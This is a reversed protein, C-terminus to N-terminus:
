KEAANVVEVRRNEPATPNAAVKLRTEGYGATVLTEPALKFKEVLYRKVADARRESLEQNFADSGVSDTHGALVFSNGKLKPDSLAKGLADINGLANRSINASNFDFRIELDIKPNTEAISAVKERENLSLSRATRNRLTNVFQKTEAQRAQDAASLSLSRTLSKKPTLASIIADSTVPEAAFAIGAPLTLGLAIISSAIRTKLTASM